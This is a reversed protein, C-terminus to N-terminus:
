VRGTAMKDDDATATGYWCGIGGGRVEAGRLVGMGCGEISTLGRWWLDSLDEVSEGTLLLLLLEHHLAAGVLQWCPDVVVRGGM